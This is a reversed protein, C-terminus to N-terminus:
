VVQSFQLDPEKLYTTRKKSFRPTTAFSHLYIKNSMRIQTWIFHLLIFGLFKLNLLFMDIFYYIILVKVQM